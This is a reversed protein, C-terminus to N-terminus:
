GDSLERIKMEVFKLSYYYGKWYYWEIGDAFSQHSGRLYLGNLNSFHCSAYWWAGKYMKACSDKGYADNDVDKTSFRQGYHQSLSDAVSGTYGGATLIYGKAESRIMFNRYHAYKRNHEFDQLDIRLEFRVPSTLYHINDNGLWFEGELEGFGIKYDKWNRFFNVSGDKRRQFVIWGGGETEQDCYVEVSRRISAVYIKYVGSLTHGTRLLELCSRAKESDEQKKSFKDIRELVRDMKSLLTKVSTEVARDHLSTYVSRDVERYNRSESSNRKENNIASIGTKFASTGRSSDLGKQKLEKIENMTLDTKQSIADASRRVYHVGSQMQLLASDMTKFPLDNISTQRDDKAGLTSLLRIIIFLFIGQVAMRRLIESHFVWQRM